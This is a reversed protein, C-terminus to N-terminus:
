HIKGAIARAAMVLYYTVEELIKDNPREPETPSRDGAIGKQKRFDALKVVKQGAEASM